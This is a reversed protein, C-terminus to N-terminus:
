DEVTITMQMTPHIICTIDFTGPEDFVVRLTSGAGVESDVFADAVAQGGTGETVTHEYDDENVFVVETGAAVTLEAPAFRAGDILVEAEGAAGASASPEPSATEERTAAPEPTASPIVSAAPSTSPSEGATACAALATALALVLGPPLASRARNVTVSTGM